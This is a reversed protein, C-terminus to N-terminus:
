GENPDNISKLSIYEEYEFTGNFEPHQRHFALKARLFYIYEEILKGYGRVGDGTHVGRRLSELWGVNSQAEKLVNSHGEQLVKHITILAKFTQVEDALIPQRCIITILPYSPSVLAFTRVSEHWGLLITLVQPGLHLRYM